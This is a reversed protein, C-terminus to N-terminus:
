SRPARNFSPKWQAIRKKIKQQEKDALQRELETQLKLADLFQHRAALLTWFYSEPLNKTQGARGQFFISALEYQAFPFDQEASRRYWSLAEAFNQKYLAGTEYNVGMLLQADPVNLIAAKELWGVSISPDGHNPVYALCFTALPDNQEARALWYELLQGKSTTLQSQTKCQAIAPLSDLTQAEARGTEGGNWCLLATFIMWHRVTM